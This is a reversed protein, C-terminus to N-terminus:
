PWTSETTGHSTSPTLAALTCVKLGLIPPSSVNTVYFELSHTVDNISCDLLVKGEPSVKHNGYSSLVVNTQQLNKQVPLQRFISRPLVNAEAGTDLKFNIVMGNVNLKTLWAKECSHVNVTLQGILLERSDSGGSDVGGEAGQCTVTRLTHMKKKHYKCM